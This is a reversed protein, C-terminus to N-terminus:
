VLPAVAVHSDAPFADLSELIPYVTVGYERLLAAFHSLLSGRLLVPSGARKLDLAIANALAPQRFDSRIFDIYALKGSPQEVLLQIDAPTRVPTLLGVEASGAGSEAIPTVRFYRLRTEASTLSSVQWTVVRENAPDNGNLILFEVRAAGFADRIASLNHGVAKIEETDLVRAQRLGTPVAEPSRGPARVADRKDPVSMRRLVHTALEVEYVDHACSELGDLQGYLAALTAVAGDKEAPVTAIVSARLDTWNCVLLAVEATYDDRGNDKIFRWFNAVHALCDDMAALPGSQPMLDGSDLASWYVPRISVLGHALYNQFVLRCAAVVEPPAEGGNRKFATYAAPLILSASITNIDAEGALRFPVLKASRLTTGRAEAVFRDPSATTAPLAPFPLRRAQLLWLESRDDVLWELDLPSDAARELALSWAVLENAHTAHFAGEPFDSLTRSRKDVVRTKAAVRGGVVDAPSGEAWEILIATADETGPLLTYVAGGAVSTPAYQVIVAMGLEHVPLGNVRRYALAEPTFASAWVRLIAAPLDDVSGIGVESSYIGPSIAEATDESVFSSRVAFLPRDAAGTPLSLAQARIEGVLDHPFELSAILAPLDKSERMGRLQPTLTQRMASITVCFSPPCPAGQDFLLGLGKAKGGIEETSTRNYDSDWVVIRGGFTM